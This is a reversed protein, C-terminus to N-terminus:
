SVVTFIGKTSANKAALDVLNCSIHHDLGIKILRETIKFLVSILCICLYFAQFWQLTHKKQTDPSSQDRELKRPNSSIVM